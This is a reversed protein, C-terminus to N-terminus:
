QASEPTEPRYFLLFDAVGVEAEARGEARPLITVFPERSLRAFRANIGLGHSLHMAGAFVILLDDPQRLLDGALRATQEGMYSDWAVQVRYMRESCRSDSEGPKPSHCHAFLPSLLQRHASLNLDLADYFARQEPTMASVNADSVARRFSRSLNIGYFSGGAEQVARYVPAYSDFPYGVRKEWGIERSFNGDFTGAAYEKLLADDEPLFWENALAIRRGSGALLTLLAALERHMQPRTHHDGIFVVRYASLRATLEATGICRAQKMDFVSCAAPLRHELAAKPQTCGTLLLMSLLLLFSINRM